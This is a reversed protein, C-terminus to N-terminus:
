KLLEKKNLSARIQQAFEYDIYFEELKTKYLAFKIEEVYDCLTLYLFSSEGKNMPDKEFAKIRNQLLLLANKLQKRNVKFYM